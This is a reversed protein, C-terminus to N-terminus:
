RGPHLDRLHAGAGGRSASAKMACRFALASIAPARSCRATMSIRGQPHIQDRQRRPQDAGPAAAAAHRSLRLGGSRHAADAGPEQGRGAAACPSSATWVEHLEFSEIAAVKGAELKSIDLMDNIIGLLARASHRMTALMDRQERRSRHARVAVGMGIIGNLPTRLEHSMVALFRSKAPASGRGARAQSAPAGANRCLEAAARAGYVGAPPPRAPALVADLRVGRRLGPHGAVACGGAGRRLPLRLRLRGLSLDLVVARCLAASMSSSRSLVVDSVMAAGRPAAVAPLGHSPRPAALGLVGPVDVALLPLLPQRRPRAGGAGRSLRAGRRHLLRPHDGTAARHRPSHHSRAWPTSAACRWPVPSARASFRSASCRASAIPRPGRSACCLSWRPSWCRRRSPM